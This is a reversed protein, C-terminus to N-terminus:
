GGGAVIQNPLLICNISVALVFAGAIVFLPDQIQRHALIRKM